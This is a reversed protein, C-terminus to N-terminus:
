EVVYATTANTTGQAKDENGDWNYAYLINGSRVTLGAFKGTDLFVASNNYSLAQDTVFSDIYITAIIYGASNSIFNSFATPQRMEDNVGDFGLSAISNPGATTSAPQDGTTAQVFDRSNGSQDAWNSVGTAITFKSSSFSSLLNRSM